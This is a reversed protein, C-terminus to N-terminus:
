GRVQYCYEYVDCPIDEYCGDHGFSGYCIIDGGGGGIDNFGGIGAHINSFSPNRRRPEGGAGTRFLLILLSEESCRVMM